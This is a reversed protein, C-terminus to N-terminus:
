VIINNSPVQMSLSGFEENNTLCARVRPRCRRRRRGFEYDPSFYYCEFFSM